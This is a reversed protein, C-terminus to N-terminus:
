LANKRPNPFADLEGQARSHLCEYDKEILLQLDRERGIPQNSEIGVEDSQAWKRVREFPVRLTIRGDGFSANPSSINSAAEISSVLASGASFETMQEIREGAALRKVETQTLRIRISNGHIRLKM